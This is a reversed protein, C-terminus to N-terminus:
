HEEQKPSLAADIMGGYIASVTTLVRQEVLAGAAIMEDTPERMAEIAARALRREISYDGTPYHALAGFNKSEDLIARGVREIMNSMGACGQVMVM